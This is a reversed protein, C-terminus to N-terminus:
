TEIKNEDLLRNPKGIMDAYATLNIKYDNIGHKVLCRFSLKKVVDYFQRLNIRQFDSCNLPLKSALKNNSCWGHKIGKSVFNKTKINQKTIISDKEQRPQNM